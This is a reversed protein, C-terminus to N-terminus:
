VNRRAVVVGGGGGVVVVTLLSSARCRAQVGGKAPQQVPLIVEGVGHEPEDVVPGRVQGDRLRLGSAGAEVVARDDRTKSQQDAGFRAVFKVPATVLPRGAHESPDV